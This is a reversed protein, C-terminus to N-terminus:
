STEFQSVCASVAAETELAMLYALCANKLSRRAIQSASPQYPEATQNARYVRWLDSQLQEAIQRRAFLRSTHIAEVDIEEALEALYAESPLTLMLAVMAPDLAPDALLDRYAMTLRSDMQMAEGRRYAAQLDNLVQVALQQGADWRCFGDSDSRMLTMLEDRTYPYHLKVPASFGRLLSPVPQEPIDVFVFKQDRQMVDLVLETNDSSEVDPSAGQVQLRLAGAEGLLAIALPIHFAQKNPQGPTPPCSQRVTLTYTRSDADYAGSIDLRPTGAQHYWNK